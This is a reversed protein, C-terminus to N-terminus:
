GEKAPPAPQLKQILNQRAVEILGFLVLTNGDFKTNVRGESDIEVNVFTKQEEVKGKKAEKM